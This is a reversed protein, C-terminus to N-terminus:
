KEDDEPEILEVFRKYFRQGSPKRMNVWLFSHKERTAERYMAILTDKEYRDNVMENFSEFENPQIRFIIVGDANLRISKPIGTVVQSVIWISVNYRRGNLVADVLANSKSAGLRSMQSVLDDLILLVPNCKDQGVKEIVMKQTALIEKIYALDLENVINEEKLTGSTILEGWIEDRKSATPSFLYINNYRPLPEDLPDRKKKTKTTMKDSMTKKSEIKQRRKRERKEQARVLVDIPDIVDVFAKKYGFKPKQILNALVTTKGSGRKAILIMVNGQKIKLLPEPIHKDYKNSIEGGIPEIELNM